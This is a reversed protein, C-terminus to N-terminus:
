SPARRPEDEDRYPLHTNLLYLRKGDAQRQFLAWTVIRPMLQLAVLM